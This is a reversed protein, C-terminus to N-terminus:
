ETDSNSGDQIRQNGKDAMDRGDSDSYSTTGKAYFQQQLLGLQRRLENVQSQQNVVNGKLRTNEEVLDAMQKEVVKLREIVGNMNQFMREEIAKIQILKIDDSM